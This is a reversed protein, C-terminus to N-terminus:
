LLSQVCNSQVKSCFSEEQDRARDQVDEEDDGSQFDVDHVEQDEYGRTETKRQKSRCKPSKSLSSHSSARRQLNHTARETPEDLVTSQHKKKDECPQPAEQNTVVIKPHYRKSVMNRPIM